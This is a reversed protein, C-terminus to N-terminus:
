PVHSVGSPSRFLEANQFGWLSYALRGHFAPSSITRDVHRRTSCPPFSRARRWNHTSYCCSRNTLAARWPRELIRSYAPVGSYGVSSMGNLALQHRVTYYFHAPHLCDAPFVTRRSPIRLPWVGSACLLARHYPGIQM